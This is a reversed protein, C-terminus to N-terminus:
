SVVNLESGLASSKSYVVKQFLFSSAIVFDSEKFCVYALQMCTGLKAITKPKRFNAITRASQLANEKKKLCTVYRIIMLYKKWLNISKHSWASDM